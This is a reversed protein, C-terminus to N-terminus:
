SRDVSQSTLSHTPIPVPKFRATFHFTSGQDPASELWIRGGLLNVLKTCIALGLGTGGYRRTTSGDAQQFAEFIKRQAQPPIGIGTDAITFQLLTATENKEVCAVALRISGQHTFKVSNSLLNLLIQKLRYQDGILLEPVEPAIQLITQLQKDQAQAQILHFADQVCTRITFETEEITLQGSEVKAFDLIENLLMMLSQSSTQLTDVYERQEEDLRTQSLLDAFGLIGNMPTRIEHSMNALFDSKARNAAEAAVKLSEEALLKQTIVATQQKVRRRLVAVWILILATAAALIGILALARRLTWWPPQETVVIDASSRCLLNVAAVRGLSDIEDTLIGTVRVRSNDQPLERITAGPIPSISFLDAGQHVTLQPRDRWLSSRLAQGTISVLEADYNGSMAQAATIVIPPPPPGHGVLKITADVLRVHSQFLDIFGFAEVRDGPQLAEEQRTSVNISSTRDRLYLGRGPMSATVVGSVKVPQLISQGSGFRQLQDILAVPPDFAAAPTVVHLQDIGPSYIQVAVLQNKSNFAAGCVGRIRITAGVLDERLSGPWPMDIDVSGGNMQLRIWFFDDGRPSPVRAVQRVLGTVEIWTSDERTSAMQEFTVQRPIPLPASGELKWSTVNVQPAFDPLDAYGEVEIRQGPQPHPKSGNWKIYIGGTNDQVFLDTNNPNFYTVVAHLRVPYSRQAEAPTLRRIEDCTTLTRGTAATLVVQNASLLALLLAVPVAKLM